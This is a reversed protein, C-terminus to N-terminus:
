TSSQQKYPLATVDARGKKVGVVMVLDGEVPEWAADMTQAKWITGNVKVRLGGKSDPLVITIKLVANNKFIVILEIPVIVGFGWLCADVV